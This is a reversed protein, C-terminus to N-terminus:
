ACWWATASPSARGEEAATTVPHQCSDFMKTVPKGGRPAEPGRGVHRPGPVGYRGMLNEIRHQRAAPNSCTKSQLALPAAQMGGGTHVDRHSANVVAATVYSFLVVLEVFDELGM